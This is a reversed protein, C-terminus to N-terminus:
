DEQYLIWLSTLGAVWAPAGLLWVGVPAITAWAILPWNRNLLFAKVTKM